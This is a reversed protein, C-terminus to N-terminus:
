HYRLESQNILALLMTNMKIKYHHYRCIHIMGKLERYSNINSFLLDQNTKQIYKLVM